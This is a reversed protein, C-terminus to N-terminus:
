RLWAMNDADSMLGQKENYKIKVGCNGAIERIISFKEVGDSRRRAM